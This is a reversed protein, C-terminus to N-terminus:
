KGELLNNDELYKGLKERLEKKDMLNKVIIVQPCIKKVDAAFSEFTVIADCATGKARSISTNEVRVSYPLQFSNFVDSVNMRLLTSTGVGAGCVTLIKLEKM